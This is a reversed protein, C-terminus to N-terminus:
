QPPNSWPKGQEALEPTRASATLKRSTRAAQTGAETRIIGRAVLARAGPDM